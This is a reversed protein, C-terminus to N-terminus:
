AGRREARCASKERDAALSDRWLPLRACEQLIDEGMFGKIEAALANKNDQLTSRSVRHAKAVKTLPEGTAACRLIARNRAPQTEIFAEWDLKRAARVAPDEHESALADHLTFAENDASESVPEDLSVLHSRGQLQTGPQMVDTASSGTSRRGSKVIQLTYYAINGPTVQKQAEEASHILKAAIATADQLLEEADESGVMRVAHPITSKLRPVVHQLLVFGAQPSM